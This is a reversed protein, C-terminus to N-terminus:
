PAALDATLEVVATDAFPTAPLNARDLERTVTLQVTRGELWGLASASAATGDMEPGVGTVSEELVVDVATLAIALDDAADVPLTRTRWCRAGAQAGFGDACDIPEYGEPLTVAGLAAEIRARQEPWRREEVGHRIEGVWYPGAYLTLAVAAAVLPVAVLVATRTRSM